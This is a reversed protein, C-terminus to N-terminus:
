SFLRSSLYHLLLGMGFALLAIILIAFNAFGLALTTTTNGPPFITFSLYIALAPVSSVLAFRFLPMKMLSVRLFTKAAVIFACVLGVLTLAGTLIDARMTLERIFSVGLWVGFVELISVVAAFNKM